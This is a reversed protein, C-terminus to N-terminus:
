RAKDHSHHLSAQCSTGIRPFPHEHECVEGEIGSQHTNAFPLPSIVVRRKFSSHTGQSPCSIDMFAASRNLDVLQSSACEAHSPVLITIILMHGCIYATPVERYMGNCEKIACRRFTQTNAHSLACLTKCTASEDIRFCYMKWFPKTVSAVLSLRSCSAALEVRCTVEDEAGMKVVVQCARASHAWCAHQVTWM